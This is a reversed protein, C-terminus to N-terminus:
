VCVLQNWGFPCAQAHQPAPGAPVLLLGLENSLGVSLAPKPSMNPAEAPTLWQVPKWSHPLWSFGALMASVAPPLPCARVKVALLFLGAPLVQAPVCLPLSMPAVTCSIQCVGHLALLGLCLNRLTLM